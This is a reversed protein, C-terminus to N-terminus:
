RKSTQRNSRRSQEFQRNQQEAALLPEVEFICFPSFNSPTSRDAWTFKGNYLAQTFGISFAADHLNLSKFQMNLEQDAIGETEANMFQQCSDLVDDPVTEADEASAFLLLQTVSPHLKKLRDKKKDDREVTCDLQRTILENHTAAEETQHTISNALQILIADNLNNANPPLPVGFNPPPGGM